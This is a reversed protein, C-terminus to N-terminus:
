GDGASIGSSGLRAGLRRALHDRRARQTVTLGELEMLRDLEAWLAYYESSDAPLGGVTRQYHEIIAAAGTM